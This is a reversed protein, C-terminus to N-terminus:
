HSTFNFRFALGAQLKDVQRFAPPLSGRDYELNALLNRTLSYRAALTLFRRDGEAERFITEGAGNGDERSEATYLKRWDYSASVAITRSRARDLEIVWAAQAGVKLRTIRGGSVDANEHTINKGLETGMYGFTRIFMKKGIPWDQPNIGLAIDAVVDKSRVTKDAEFGPGASLKWSELWWVPHRKPWRLVAPAALILSNADDQPKTAANLTVAPVIHGVAGLAAFHLTPYRFFVDANLVNQTQSSAANRTYSVAAYFDAGGTPDDGTPSPAALNDITTDLSCVDAIQSDRPTFHISIKGGNEPQAAFLVVIRSPVVGGQYSVSEITGPSATWTGPWVGAAGAAPRCEVPVSAVTLVARRARVSTAESIAFADPVVASLDARDAGSCPDEAGACVQGLITVTRHALTEARIAAIQPPTLTIKIEQGSVVTQSLLDAITGTGGAQGLVVLRVSVARKIESDFDLQVTAPNPRYVATQAYGTAVAWLALSLIRLWNGAM